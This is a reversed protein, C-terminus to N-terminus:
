REGAPPVSAPRRILALAHRAIMLEEDTPVVYAKLRSAATSILPGDRANAAQDLEFGLWRLRELVAGRIEPSREGIGATFVIGEIGGMAAALAGAERAIRYVFYDLALKAGPADSALLDRVDNSVGSLGKLGGEHYLFREVQEGGFGKAQILYVVVGPDLQGTRTGMPLGDVATFGMTSDLSRGAHIACMSAGSGLHCVVVRGDALAPDIEVLRHAIYEYSLGHFGYRRVGEQYFSEPIAYRDAVEPHGRHFATDFCAVQPIGPRRQRIAKIPALNNPQHLPALPVLRQLRDLVEDDVRVPAGYDPGGHVVRHGIAIPEVGGLQAVLWDDLRDFAQPVNGVADPEHTQDVLAEGAADKAMLRPHTGIGEMQGKFRLDLRDGPLVAFLQFKISSSGANVVLLTETM